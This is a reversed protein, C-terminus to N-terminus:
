EGEVGSVGTLGGMEQSRAYITSGDARRSGVYLEKVDEDARIRESTSDRFVAGNDMVVARDVVTFLFELNHEVLLITIGPALREIVGLVTPIEEDALGAAPEDLLLVEPDMAMAVAIEVQRQHGYSLDAIRRHEVDSLGCEGILASARKSRQPRTARRWMVYQSGIPGTGLLGLMVHDHPTLTPFLSTVQFTRAVGLRARRHPSMKTIDRGALCIQGSTVPLVGSLLQLLTTKGAGNLGIIGVREGKAVEITVNDVAVFGGFRKSVGVLSLFAGPDSTGLRISATGSRPAHYGAASRSRGAGGEWGVHEEADRREGDPRGTEEVRPGAEVAKARYREPLMNRAAGHIGRPLWLTVGIYICGLPILWYNAQYFSLVYQIITLLAAGAIAGALSGNGGVIIMLMVVFSKTLSLSDPSIVGNYSTWLIGAVGALAGALVFSVTKHTETAIGLTQSRVERDRIGKLILGFNSEQIIWTMWVTIGVIGLTVYYFTRGASLAPVLPPVGPLGNFGGTLGGLETAAEWLLEGFGLTILLFFLGRLRVAVRGVLVAVIIVMALAVLAGFAWGRHYRTTLIAGVYGAGGFFAAQGLSDLGTVGMLLHMGLAFIIYIEALTAIQLWFASLTHGLVIAVLVVLTIGLRCEAKTSRVRAWKPWAM